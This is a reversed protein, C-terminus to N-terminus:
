CFFCTRKKFFFDENVIRLYLVATCCGQIIQRSSFTSHFGYPSWRTKFLDLTGKTFFAWVKWCVAHFPLVGRKKGGATTPFLRIVLPSLVLWHAPFLSLFGTRKLPLVPFVFTCFDQSAPYLLIWAWPRLEQSLVSQQSHWQGSVECVTKICNSRGCM